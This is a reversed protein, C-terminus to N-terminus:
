DEQIGSNEMIAEGIPNVAPIPQVVSASTPTESPRNEGPDEPPSESM